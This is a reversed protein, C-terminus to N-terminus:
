GSGRTSRTASCSRVRHHAAGSVLGLVLGLALFSFESATVGDADRPEHEKAKAAGDGPWRRQSDLAHTLESPRDGCGREARLATTTCTRPAPHYIGVRRRM